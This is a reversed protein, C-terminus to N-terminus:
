AVGGFLDPLDVTEVRRKRPKATKTAAKSKVAPSKVSEAHRRCSDNAAKIHAVVRQVEEGTLGVSERKQLVNIMVNCIIEQHFLDHAHNERELRTRWYTDWEAAERISQEDAPEGAKAAYKGALIRASEAEGKAKNVDQILKRIHAAQENMTEAQSLAIAEFDRAV